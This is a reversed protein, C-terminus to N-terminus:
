PGAMSGSGVRDLHGDSIMLILNQMAANRTGYDVHPFRKGWPMGFNPHGFGGEVVGGVLFKYIPINSM